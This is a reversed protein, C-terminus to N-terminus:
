FAGGEFKLPTEGGDAAPEALTIFVGHTAGTVDSEKDDIAAEVDARSTLPDMVKVTGANQDIIIFPEAGEEVQALASSILSSLSRYPRAADVQAKIADALTAAMGADRATQEWQVSKGVSGAVPALTQKKGAVAGTLASETFNGEAHDASVIIRRKVDIIMRQATSAAALVANVVSQISSEPTSAGTIQSVANPDQFDGISAEITPIGNTDIPM